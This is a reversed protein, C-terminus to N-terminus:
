VVIVYQQYSDPAGPGFKRVYEHMETDLLISRLVLYVAVAVTGEFPMNFRATTSRPHPALSTLLYTM